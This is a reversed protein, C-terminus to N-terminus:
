PPLSQTQTIQAELNHNQNITKNTKSTKFEGYFYSVFGWLNLALSIGKVSHFKEGYFVVGLIETVSLLSAIVIGSLLSSGYCIVGVAGIFFFQWLIASWIVVVYYKAEGMEFGRAEKPIAQFDKNIIMGITCFATSFFCMVLQIELVLTYTIAQKAQKYVLEIWPLIFGYLLAALLTLVFGLIYEGTSEGGPRDSSAGFALVGAGMTLLVIANVSYATFKQKVLLFAFGATFALHTAIILAETSIPLKAVGYAYLYDDLGTLVGIAAASTFVKPTIFFLKATPGRRRRRLIYAAALPILTLPWAATILGSSFWIRNGGRLFYLRSILAGGCNGIGLIVCNLLLIFKRRWTTSRDESTEM